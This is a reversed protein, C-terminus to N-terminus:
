AGLADFLQRIEDDVESPDEVTDAIGKRLLQGYRRRLRHAAVRLSGASQGTSRGIAAFDLTEGTLCSKLRDFVHVRGAERYEARLEDLVRGLRELAWQRQFVREPTWDDHPELQYRDEAGEIEIPLPRRGGGRKLANAARRENSLYNGLATLLFTRLRGRRADPLRFHDRQLLTAFFGQTSDAADDADYGRRRVYCYLPFWLEQCLEELAARAAGPDESAAQRVLSWRTTRFRGAGGVLPRETAPTGDRANAPEREVVVGMPTHARSASPTVPM